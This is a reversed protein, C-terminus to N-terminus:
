KRNNKKRYQRKLSEALTEVFDIDYIGDDELTAILAFIKKLTTPSRFKASNSEGSHCGCDFKCNFFEDLEGCNECRITGRNSIYLDWIDPCGNHHWSIIKTNYCDFIPCRSKFIEEEDIFSM